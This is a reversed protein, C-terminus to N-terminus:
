IQPRTELGAKVQELCPLKLQDEPLAPGQLLWPSCYGTAAQVGKIWGLYRSGWVAELKLSM